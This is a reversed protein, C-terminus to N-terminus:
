LGKVKKQNLLEFFSKYFNKEKAVFFNKSKRLNYKTPKSIYHGSNQKNLFKRKKIKLVKGITSFMKQIKVTKKGTINLCIKKFKKQIVSNCAIAADKVHIYRRSAKSSGLYILKKNKIIEDVILKIGNNKDAREGYLSGFRLIVYNLNYRNSFEEIYDEACRKSTAYFSGEHSNAYISSAHIIKKIKYKKCCLLINIIGIINSQATELPKSRAEDIDALGAFNFVVDSKQIAGMLSKINCIDGKVFNQKEKIFKSKKRDFITVKHGKNTLEDAVHSGLFGSGGAVLCRM